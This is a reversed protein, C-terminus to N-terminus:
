RCFHAKIKTKLKNILEDKFERGKAVQDTGGANQFETGVRDIAQKIDTDTVEDKLAAVKDASLSASKAVWGAVWFLCYFKLNNRDATSVTAETKLASEVRKFLDAAVLYCEIPHKESFLSGYVQDDEILSSPRGRANNPEALLLSIMAQTLLRISIIKAAPKGKNKYYNKRRDYFYGGMKLADEIDRQVKDTARLSAPPVVNQSNTAKIIQDRVAEDESSVIKVMVMREDDCGDEDFYKAIQSSTQLGNVIQPNEIRVSNGMQSAETALITVGNNLWWFDMDKPNELAQSIESNVKTLGQRDRVNTDFLDHRVKEENNRLFRNYDKLCSLVVYGNDGLAAQKFKLNFTQSPKQRVLTLLEQAGVFSFTVLTEKGFMKEVKAIIEDRKLKINDHIHSDAKMAVYHMQISLNPIGKKSLKRYTKRFLNLSKKVASSYQSLKIYKVDLDLLHGLSSNM